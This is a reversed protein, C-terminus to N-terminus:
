PGHRAVRRIDQSNAVPNAPQRRTIVGVDHYPAAVRQLHSRPRFSDPNASRDRIKRGIEIVVDNCFSVIVFAFLHRPPHGAAPVWDCATAYFDILPMILMHSLLYTM